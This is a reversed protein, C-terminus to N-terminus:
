FGKFSSQGFYLLKGEWTDVWGPSLALVHIGKPKLEAAYKAVLMNMGAKAVAYAVAYSIGSQRVLGVDGMGSSIHVIKKQSGKEILPLFANTVWLGGYVATGLVGDFMAHTAVVDLPFQSPSYSMTAMDSAIANHILVDLTGGTVASVAHAAALLSAPDTVDAKIAHVNTHKAVLDALAAGSPDRVIAFVTNSPNAALQRIFERGIGRSAGTIAYSSM